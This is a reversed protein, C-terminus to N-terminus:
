GAGNARSMRPSAKVRWELTYLALFAVPRNHALDVEFFVYWQDLRRRFVIGLAERKQSKLVIQGKLVKGARRAAKTLM